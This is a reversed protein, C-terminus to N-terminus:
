HRPRAFVNTLPLRAPLLLAVHKIHVIEIVGDRATHLRVQARQRACDHPRRVVIVIWVEQDLQVEGHRQS